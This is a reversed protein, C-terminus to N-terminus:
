LATRNNLVADQTEQRREERERRTMCVRRRFNTGTVQERRCILEDADGDGASADAEGAATSAVTEAGSDPANQSACGVSAFALLMMFVKPFNSM